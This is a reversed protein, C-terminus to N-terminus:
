ALTLKRPTFRPLTEYRIAIAGFMRYLPSVSINRNAKQAFQPAATSPLNQSFHPAGAPTGPAAGPAPGTGGGGGPAVGGNLGPDAPGSEGLTPIVSLM